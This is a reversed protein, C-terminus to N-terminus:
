SSASAQTCSLMAWNPPSLLLTVIMTHEESRSAFCRNKRQCPWEAPASAMESAMVRRFELMMGGNRAAMMSEPSLTEVNGLGLKENKSANAVAIPHECDGPGSRSSHRRLIGAEAM